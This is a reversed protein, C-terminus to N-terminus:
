VSSAALMKHNPTARMPHGIFRPVAIPRSKFKNCQGAKNTELFWIQFSFSRRGHANPVNLAEWTGPSRYWCQRGYFVSKIPVAPVICIVSFKLKTVRYRVVVVQHLFTQNIPSETGCSWSHSVDSTFFRQKFFRLRFFMAARYFPDNWSSKM